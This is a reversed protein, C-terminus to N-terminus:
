AVAPTAAILEPSSLTHALVSATVAGTCGLGCFASRKQM